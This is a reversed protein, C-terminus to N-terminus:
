RRSLKAQDEKKNPCESAFHEITSCEFYKAHAKKKIKCMNIKHHSKTLDTLPLKSCTATSGKELKNVINHRNDQFPQVHGKNKLRSLKLKLMEVERKLDDNESAIHDDCTEVIAHEDCSPKAQSCCSNAYSLYISKPACTCTHSQSFKVMTLVVVHNTEQLAYSDILKEHSCLLNGHREQLKRHKSVLKEFEDMFM